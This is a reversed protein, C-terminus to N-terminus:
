EREWDGGMTEILSKRCRLDWTYVTNISGAAMLKQIEVFTRGQLKYKLLERCRDGLKGIAKRLRDIMIRQRALHEPDARPDRLQIDDTSLTAHEGRRGHGAERRLVNNRRAGPVRRGVPRAIPPRM